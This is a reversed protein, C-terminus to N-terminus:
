KVMEIYELAIKAFKVIIKRLEGKSFGYEDKIKKGKTVSNLKGLMRNLEKVFDTDLAREIEIEKFEDGSLAESDILLNLVERVNRKFTSENYLTCTRLLFWTYYGNPYAYASALEIFGLGTNHGTWLLLKSPDEEDRKICVANKNVYLYFMNEHTVGCNTPDYEEFGEENGFEKMVLSNLRVNLDKESLKM